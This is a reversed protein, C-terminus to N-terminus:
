RSSTRCSSSTRRRSRRRCRRRRRDGAPRYLLDGREAAGAAAEAAPRGLPARVGSAASPASNALTLKVTGTVRGTAGQGFVTEVAACAARAVVRSSQLRRRLQWRRSACGARRLPRLCRLRTMATAGPWVVSPRAARRDPGKPDLVPVGNVVVHEIGTPYQHPREYTATDSITDRTSSSSTRWTVSRSDPRSRAHGDADAAAGTM